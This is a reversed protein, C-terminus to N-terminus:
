EIGSDLTLDGNGVMVKRSNGGIIWDLPKAYWASNAKQISRRYTAGDTWARLFKKLDITKNADQGIAGAVVKFGAQIWEDTHTKGWCADSYLARLKHPGHGGDSRLDRIERALDTMAYCDPTDKFCIKERQGHLYTVVDIVKVTPDLELDELAGLFNGRTAEQPYIVRVQRYYGNTESVAVRVAKWEENRYMGRLIAAGRSSLNAIVVLARDGVPVDARATFAVFLVLLSFALKISANM